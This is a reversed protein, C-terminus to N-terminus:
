VWVEDCGGGDGGEEGDGRDRGGLLVLVGKIVV